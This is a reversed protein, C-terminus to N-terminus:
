HVVRVHGRVFAIAGDREDRVDPPTAEPLPDFLCVASPLPRVATASVVLSWRGVVLFWKRGEWLSIFIRRNIATAATTRAGATASAWAGCNRVVLGWLVAGKEGATLTPLM